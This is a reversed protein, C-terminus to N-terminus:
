PDTEKQQAAMFQSCKKETIGKERAWGIKQGLEQSKENEQMKIM